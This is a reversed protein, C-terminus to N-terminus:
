LLVVTKSSFREKVTFLPKSCKFQAIVDRSTLHSRRISRKAGYRIKKKPFRSLSEQLAEAMMLKDITEITSLKNDVSGADALRIKRQSALAYKLRAIRATVRKKKEPQRRAHVGRQFRFFFLSQECDLFFKLCRSVWPLRIDRCFWSSPGCTDWAWM